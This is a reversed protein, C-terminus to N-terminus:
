PGVQYSCSGILAFTNNAFLRLEYAGPSSPAILTVVKPRPLRVYNSNIWAGNPSGPVYTAVWDLEANGGTVTTVFSTGAGVPASPCTLPAGGSDDNTITGQGQSDALTAGSPASLIVLFTENPEASTDGNVAVTVSKTTEGPSFSLSGSAPTYDSPQLATGDATAWNVTVTATAAASLTVNFTANVTGANGETVTTDSISLTPLSSGTGVQYPCSGILTYTNNAFLRLEYPGPTTPAILTVVKPRPLRVYNSNIWAGNPSGPVYTAVWDLEANGGTV